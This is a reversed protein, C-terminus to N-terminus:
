QQKEKRLKQKFKKYTESLAVTDLALSVILVLLINTIFFNKCRLSFNPLSHCHKWWIAYFLCCCCCRCHQLLPQLKNQIGLGMQQCQTCQAVYVCVFASQANLAIRNHELGFISKTYLVHCITWLKFLRLQIKFIFYQRSIWM